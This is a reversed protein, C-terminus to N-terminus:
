LDISFEHVYFWSKGLIINRVSGPSINFIRAIFRQPFGSEIMKKIFVARNKDIKRPLRCKIAADLHNKHHTGISLHKPNFCSPNDCDHMVVLDSYIDFNNWIYASLRHVYKPKGDVLVTGYGATSKAKNWEWCGNDNINKHKLLWKAIGIKDNIALNSYLSDTSGHKHVRSYHTPCYGKAIQNRYCGGVICIKDKILKKTM